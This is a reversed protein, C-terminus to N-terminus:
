QRDEREHVFNEERLGKAGDYYAKIRPLDAAYDGSPTVAGALTITRTGYDLVSVVLPAGAARAIHYFGSKWERTAARTAEPAVALVMRSSASFADKMQRVLDSGGGDKSAQRDVPVCGLWRVIGGFPGTTLEKKGMWKLKVRYYGAAALMNIGDWNSTHPAAILVMKAIERPWDGRMKWGALALYATCLYRWLESFPGRFAGPRATSPDFRANLPDNM